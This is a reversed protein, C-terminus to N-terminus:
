TKPHFNIWHKEWILKLIISFKNEASLKEEQTTSKELDRISRVLEQAGLEIQDPNWAIPGFVHRMDHSSTWWFTCSALGRALHWHSWWINADDNYKYYLNQAYNSLDWLKAQILNNENDWLHYPSNSTLEKETSEWTSSIPSINIRSTQSNIFNSLLDTKIHINDVSNLLKEFNAPEDIHRLGYLEADTASIFTGKKNGLFSLLTEPIFTQSLTRSRFIIDLSTNSDNYIQSTNINNLKGNASIEDLIIWSYGLESVIKATEKSYAMEPFFFGKLAINEGFYKKLINKNEIIQERAKQPNILPLIPHYAASGVLELQGKQVLKNIRRIIDQRNLEEDLRSLLCGTINASFKVQPNEELGRLIREYSKVTAEIIKKKDANAPQYFHIFNLWLM